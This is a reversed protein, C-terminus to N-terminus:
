THSTENQYAKRERATLARASIIRTVTLGDTDIRSTWVVLFVKSRDFLYSGITNWRDEQDSHPGDYDTLHSREAFPDALVAAAEEFRIRHKVHNANAKEEDLEFREHRV